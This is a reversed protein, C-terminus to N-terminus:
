NYLLALAVWGCPVIEETKGETRNEGGRVWLYYSPLFFFFFFSLFLSGVSFPCSFPLQLPFPLPSTILLSLCTVLHILEESSLLPSDIYKKKLDLWCASSVFRTCCFLEPTPRYFLERICFQLQSQKGAPAGSDASLQWATKRASYWEWRLINSWATIWGITVCVPVNFFCCSVCLRVCDCAQETVDCCHQTIENLVSVSLSIFGTTPLNNFYVTFVEESVTTPCEVARRPWSDSQITLIFDFLSLSSIRQFSINLRLEFWDCSTWVLSCCVDLIEM